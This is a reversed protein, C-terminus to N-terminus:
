RTPFTMSRAFGNGKARIEPIGACFGLDKPDRVMPSVLHSLFSLKSVAIEAKQWSDKLNSMPITSRVQMSSNRNKQGIQQVLKMTDRCGPLVYWVRPAIGPRRTM